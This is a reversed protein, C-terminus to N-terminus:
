IIFSECFERLNAFFDASFNYGYKKCITLVSDHLADPGDGEQRWRNKKPVRQKPAVFVQISTWYVVKKPPGNELLELLFLLLHM